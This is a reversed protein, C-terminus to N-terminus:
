TSSNQKPKRKHKRGTPKDINYRKLEGAAQAARLGEATKAEVTIPGFGVPTNLLTEGESSPVEQTSYSGGQTIGERGMVEPQIGDLDEDERYNHLRRRYQPRHLPRRTYSPYGLRLPNRFLSRDQLLGRSSLTQFSNLGNRPRSFANSIFPSMLNSSALSPSMWSPAMPSVMRQSVASSSRGALSSGLNGLPTVLSPIMYRLATSDLPLFHGLQQTGAMGVQQQIGAPQMGQMGVTQMGQMGQMSVPQMGIQQEVDAPQMGLSQRAFPQEQLLQQQLQLQNLQLQQPQLAQQTLMPQMPQLQQLTQLAPTLIMQRKYDQPMDGELFDEVSSPDENALIPEVLTQRKVKRKDKLREQRHHKKVKRKDSAGPVKSRGVM